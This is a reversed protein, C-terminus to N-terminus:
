VDETRQGPPAPPALPPVQVEALKWENFDFHPKLLTVAQSGVSSASQCM